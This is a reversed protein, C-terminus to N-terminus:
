QQDVSIVRYISGSFDDSIFIEGSPSEAVDVPRGIVDDNDLFGTMFDTETIVDDDSWHLRVVKYGDKENRNWSGHLAVLADHRYRGAHLFRIGLPANHPKFGHVPQIANSLLDKNDTTYEPDPDGFGNIYPWGYFGGQTIQNLEEPPFDDGLLDRSNETAYLAGSAPSWDFGVANRLGSAFIERTEGDPSIRLIAARHSNDEICVNCSSGISIYLWGDPGARVTRTWHRGELPIDTIIREYTGSTQRTSTDFQIKGVADIEAVYLWGQFLEIGHPSTLGSLVVERGNAIGDGDTDQYLVHVEGTSPTTVLLDGNETTQLMRAGPLDTAFVTFRFGEPLKIRQDLLLKDAKIGGSLVEIPVNIPPLLTYIIGVGALLIVILVILIKKLM